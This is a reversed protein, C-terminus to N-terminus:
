LIKQSNKAMKISFFNTFFFKIWAAAGQLKPYKMENQKAKTKNLWNNPWNQTEKNTKHANKIPGKEVNGM